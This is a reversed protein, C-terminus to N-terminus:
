RVHLIFLTIFALGNKIAHVGIGAYISGTKQRLYCLVLSLTFTDIAAVWLLKGDSSELAHPAAFVLSTVIAAVVPTMKNRLGGYLYGRFVIEEVLPPLVVLSVAALVLPIFGTAGSFGISQEQNVDLNFFSSTINLTLTYAALYLIVGFIAFGADHWRLKRLGIGQKIKAWSWKRVFLWVTALTVVEAMLTVWFQGAISDTLSTLASNSHHNAALYVLVFIQIFIQAGLFSLVTGFSARWPGWPARSSSAPRPESTDNSM